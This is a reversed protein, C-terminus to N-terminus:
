PKVKVTAILRGDATPKLLHNARTIMRTKELLLIAREFQELTMLGALHAYMEGEIAAGLPSADALEVITELFLMIMKGDFNEIDATKTM